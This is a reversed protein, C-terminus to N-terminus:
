GFARVGADAARQDQQSDGGSVGIPYQPDDRRTSM